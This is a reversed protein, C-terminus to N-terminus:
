TRKEKTTKAPKPGDEKPRFRRGMIPYDNVVRVLPDERFLEIYRQEEGAPVDVAYTKTIPSVEVGYCKPFKQFFERIEDRAADRLFLVIVTGPNSWRSM